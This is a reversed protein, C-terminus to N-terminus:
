DSESADLCDRDPNNPNRAIWCAPCYCFQDALDMILWLTLTGRNCGDCSHVAENWTDPRPEENEEFYDQVVGFPIGAPSDCYIWKPM